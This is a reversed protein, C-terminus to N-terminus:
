CGASTRSDRVRINADILLWRGSETMVLTMDGNGVPFFTIKANRM